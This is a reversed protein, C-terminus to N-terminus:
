GDPLGNGQSQPPAGAQDALGREGWVVVRDRWQTRAAPAEEPAETGVYLFAVVSDDAELGLAAKITEDYAAAGTKWVANFGLAKAALLINGAASGASLVQEIRPVKAKPDCVAAVVIILPARFAKQREVGAGGGTGRRGGRGRGPGADPGPEEAYRASCGLLAPIRRASATIDNALDRVAWLRDAHMGRADIRRVEATDPLEEFIDESHAGM